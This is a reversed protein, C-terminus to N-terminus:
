LWGGRFGGRRLGERIYRCQRMLKWILGSRHNEVM